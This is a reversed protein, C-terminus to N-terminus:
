LTNSPINFRARARAKVALRRGTHKQQYAANRFTIKVM